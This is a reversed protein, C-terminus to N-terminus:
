EPVSDCELLSPQPSRATLLRAVAVETDGRGTCSAFPWDTTKVAVTASILGDGAHQKVGSTLGTDATTQLALGGASPLKAEEPMQENDRTGPLKVSLEQEIVYVAVAAPETM